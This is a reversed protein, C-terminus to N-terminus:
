FTHNPSSRDFCRRRLLLLQAHSILGRRLNVVSEDMSKDNNIRSSHYQVKGDSM